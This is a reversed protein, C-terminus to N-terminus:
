EHRQRSMAVVLEDRQRRLAEVGAQSMREEWQAAIAERTSATWERFPGAHVSSEGCGIREFHELWAHVDPKALNLGFAGFAGVAAWRLGIGHMLAQDIQAVTAEGAAVMQLAERFLALQLRNAVFGFVERELRLPERGVSRYFECARDLAQPSTEGGGVVEVLPVAYPPNIPHGILTRQPHPCHAQIQSIPFGSTSSAILVDPGTRGGIDAYLKQKLDLVDPACEQVFQAGQLATGLETTFEIRRALESEPVQLVGAAHALTEKLLGAAKAEPDYALVQLGHGAFLAAWGSGVVGCGVCAVTEIRENKM